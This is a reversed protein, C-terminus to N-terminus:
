GTIGVCPYVTTTNVIFTNLQCCTEILWESWHFPLGIKGPCEVTVLNLFQKRIPLIRNITCFVAQMLDVLASEATILHVECLTTGHRIDVHVLESDILMTSEVYIRLAVGKTGVFVVIHFGTM